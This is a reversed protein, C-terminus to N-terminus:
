LTHAWIDEKGEAVPIISPIHDSIKRMCMIYGILITSHSLALSRVKRMEGLIYDCTKKASRGIVEFRVAEAVSGVSIKSQTFKEIAKCM